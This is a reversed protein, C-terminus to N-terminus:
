VLTSVRWGGMRNKIIKKGHVEKLHKQAAQWIRKQFDIDIDRGGMIVGGNPKVGFFAERKGERYCFTCVTSMLCGANSARVRIIYNPKPM